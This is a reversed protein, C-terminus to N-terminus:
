MKRLSLSQKFWSKFFSFCSESRPISFVVNVFTNEKSHFIM